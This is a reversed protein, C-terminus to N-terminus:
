PDLAVDSREGNAGQTRIRLRANPFLGVYVFVAMLAAAHVIGLTRARGTLVYWVWHGVLGNLLMCHCCSGDEGRTNPCNRKARIVVIM